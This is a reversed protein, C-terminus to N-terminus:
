VSGGEEDDSSVLAADDAEGRASDSEEEADLVEDDLAEVDPAENEDVTPALNSARGSNDGSGGAGGDEAGSGGDMVSFPSPPEVSGSGRAGTRPSNAAPDAPNRSPSSGGGTEANLQDLGEAVLDQDPGEDVMELGGLVADDLKPPPVHLMFGRKDKEDIGEPFRFDDPWGMVRM